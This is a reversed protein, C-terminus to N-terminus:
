AEESWGVLERLRELVAGRIERRRAIVARADPLNDVAANGKLRDCAGCAAVHRLVERREVDELSDFQSLQHPDPHEGM